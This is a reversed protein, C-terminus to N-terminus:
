LRIFIQKKYLFYVPLYILTIFLGAVLMSAFRPDFGISIGAQMLHASLTQGFLSVGYFPFSLLGALVYATIANSGFIVFPKAVAKYSKIDIFYMASALTMAALGSTALVYSSTWLNKNLPFNWSWVVGAVAAAFGAVSLLAVKEFDSKKSRLVTGAIMGCIASVVAPITSLLGEPDWNGNWMRGPLLFGDVWAAMNIGPEFMPSDYGPTPILTMIIWYFVLLGGGIWALRKIDLWLYLVGGILFVLAIRPLVGALRIESFDFGPYVNLFLGVAFIKLSRWAIKRILPMKATGSEIKGAYALVISVGVIFIFFPFILDTPSIGNWAKHLLPPYVFEWSGPNNVLIMAAITFGRLADLAILRQNTRLMMYKIRFSRCIYFLGRISDACIDFFLSCYDASLNHNKKAKCLIHEYCLLYVFMM